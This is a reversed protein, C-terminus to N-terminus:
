IGGNGSGGNIKRELAIIRQELDINANIFYDYMSQHNSYLNNVNNRLNAIEANLNKNIAVINTQQQEVGSAMMTVASKASSIDANYQEQTKLKNGFTLTSKEIENLKLQMGVIRINEDLGLWKNKVVHWNGVELQDVALGIPFLDVASIQFQNTSVKQSALWQKAKALLIDPEHVDDWVVSGAISGFR